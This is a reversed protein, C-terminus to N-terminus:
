ELREYAGRVREIFARADTPSLAFATLEAWVKQLRSVTEVDAITRGGAADDVYAVTPRDKFFRLSMDGVAWAASPCDNTIVQLRVGEALILAELQEKMVGPGGVRWRLAAESVVLHVDAGNGRLVALRGLRSEVAAEPNNGPDGAAILATAYARTQLLGPVTASAFVAVASAKAESSAVAKVWSPLAEHRDRDFSELLRGSAGLHADVAQVASRRLSRHGNEVKAVMSSSCAAVRGIAERSQGAAERLSRLDEGFSSM